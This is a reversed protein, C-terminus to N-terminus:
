KENLGYAAPYLLRGREEDPKRQEVQIRNAEAYADKRVGTVMWSVKMGPVGGAIKFENGTVEEAVYVPAYGGICTLQYRFDRNLAEFYAPLTVVAEGESDLTVIGDYMNKMDPSEVCSHYLYMNEPDLPHDIKFSCAAKNISGTVHVNGKFYGAYGAPSNNEGYIGYTVGSNAQGLGYVGAAGTASSKTAGYVGWTKGSSAVAKGHVGCSGDTSSRTEGWVGHILGSGRDGWGFVGVPPQGIGGYLAKARGLVGFTGGSDTSGNGTTGAESYGYVGMAAGDNAGPGATKGYIGVGGGSSTIAEGYIAAGANLTSQTTCVLANSTGGDILAKGVIELEANPGTTGIGVNGELYTTGLVYAGYGVGDHNVYLAKQSTNYGHHDIELLNGNSRVHVSNRDGEYGSVKFLTTAGGVEKRIELPADPSTTGIGVNGSVASYMNSGSITWDNDTTGSIGTLNSGDGYYTSATMSGTVNVAGSAPVLNLPQSELSSLTYDDLRLDDVRIGNGGSFYAAQGAWRSQIVRLAIPTGGASYTDEVLLAALSTGDDSVGTARSIHALTMMQNGYTELKLGEGNGTNARVHLRADPATYGIGVKGASADVYLLDPGLNFGGTSRYMRFPSNVYSGDDDYRAIRWSSGEEDTYCAFRRKGSQNFAVLPGTSSETAIAGLVHLKYAPESTGIGVLGNNWDITRTWGIDPNGPDYSDNSWLSGGGNGPTLSAATAGSVTLVNGHVELKKGPASTGIGINGDLRYVDDGSVTWDGDDTTAADFAFSATDAELAHYAYAVSILRTRPVIEADEDIQIGLYRDPSDFVSDPIPTTGGLIVNFLGGVVTV